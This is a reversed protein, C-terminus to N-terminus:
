RGVPPIEGRLVWTVRTSWTSPIPDACRLEYGINRAVITTKIRLRAPARCQSKLIEGINV